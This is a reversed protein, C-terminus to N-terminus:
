APGAQNDPMEARPQVSEPVLTPHIPRAFSQV